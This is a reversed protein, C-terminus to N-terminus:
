DQRAALSIRYIGAQRSADMTQVLTKNASRRDAQIVVAAAPNEAALRALNARIARPDIMREGIWIVNDERISVLINEDAPPLFPSADPASVDLGDEKVFSAVVLFFILLIFVVDLMPTLNIDSQEEPAANAAMSDRM